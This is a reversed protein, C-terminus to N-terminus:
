GLAVFHDHSTHAHLLDFPERDLLEAVKGVDDLFGAPGARPSLLPRAWGAAELRKALPSASTFGVEAELGAGRLARVQDIAVAAPGPGKSGMVLHPVRM